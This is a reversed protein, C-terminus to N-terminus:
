FVDDASKHFGTVVNATERRTGRERLGSEADAANKGLSILLIARAAKEHPTFRHARVDNKIDADVVEFGPLLWEVFECTGRGRIRAM